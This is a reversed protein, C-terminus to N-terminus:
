VVASLLTVHPTTSKVVVTAPTGVLPVQASAGAPLASTNRALEVIDHMCCGTAYGVVSGVMTCGCCCGANETDVAFPYAVWVNRTSPTPELEVSRM